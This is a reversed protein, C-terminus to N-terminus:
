LIGLLRSFYSGVLLYILHPHHTNLYTILTSRCKLTSFFVAFLTCFPKTSTCRNAYVSLKRLEDGDGIGVGAVETAALAERGAPLAPAGPVVGQVVVHHLPLVARAAPVEAEAATAGAGRVSEMGPQAPVAEGLAGAGVEPASQGGPSRLFHLARGLDLGHAHAHGQAPDIVTELTPAEETGAHDVLGEASHRRPVSVAVAEEEPAEM